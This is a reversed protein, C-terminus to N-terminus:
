VPELVLECRPGDEIPWPSLFGWGDTEGLLRRLCDRASQPEPSLLTLTVPLGGTRCDRVFEALRESPLLDILVTDPRWRECTEHGIGPLDGSETVVHVIRERDGLDHAPLGTLCLVRRGRTVHASALVAILLSKGSGRPGYVVLPGNRDLAQALVTPNEVHTEAVPRPFPHLIRFGERGWSLFLRRGRHPIWGSFPPGELKLGLIPGPHPVPKPDLVQPEGSPSAGILPHGELHCLSRGAQETLWAAPSRRDM